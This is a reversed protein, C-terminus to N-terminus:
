NGPEEGKGADLEAVAASLREANGSSRLLYSTEECSAFDDLAILVVSARGGSQTILLPEHDNIVDNITTALGRLLQTVTITKVGQIEKIVWVFALPAPSNSGAPYRYASKSLKRGQAEHCSDSARCTAFCQDSM